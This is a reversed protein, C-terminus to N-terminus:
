TGTLKDAGEPFRRRGFDHLPRSRRGTRHFLAATYKWLLDCLIASKFPQCMFTAQPHQVFLLIERICKTKKNKVICAHYPFSHYLNIDSLRIFIYDCTNRRHEGVYEQANRLDIEVHMSASSHEETWKKYDSHAKLVLQPQCDYPQALVPKRSQGAALSESHRETYGPTEQRLCFRETMLIDQALDFLDADADMKSHPIDHM